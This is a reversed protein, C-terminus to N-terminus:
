ERIVSRDALDAVEGVDSSRCTIGFPGSNKGVGAADGGVSVPRNDPGDVAGVAADGDEAVVCSGVCDAIRQASPVRLARGIGDADSGVSGIQPNDIRRSSGLDPAVDVGRSLAGAPDEADGGEIQGGG